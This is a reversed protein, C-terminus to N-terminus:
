PKDILEKIKGFGFWISAVGGIFMAVTGESGVLPSLKDYLSYSQYMVYSGSVGSFIALALDFVEELKPNWKKNNRHRLFLIIIAAIVIAILGIGFLSKQTM